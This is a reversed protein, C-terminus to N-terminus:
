DARAVGLEAVCRRLAAILDAKARRSRTQSL